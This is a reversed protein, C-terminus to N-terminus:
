EKGENAEETSSESHERKRRRINARQHYFGLAFQGQGENNLTRPFGEAADMGALIEEIQGRLWHASGGGSKRRIKPIHATEVRNLLRPLASAPATAAATYNRDVLTTNLQGDAAWQQADELVALLRGCLYGPHLRETDLHELREANEMTFEEGTPSLVETLKLVSVLRQSLWPASNWVRPNQLSRIASPRLSGPPPFGSYATRLLGRVENAEVERRGTVRGSEPDLAKVALADLLERVSFAQADRGSPTQLRTALLYRRLNHRLDELSEHLWERVVLRAKNPSLILVHAGADAVRLAAERAHWPTKLLRAVEAESAAEDRDFGGTTAQLVTRPDVPRGDETEVEVFDTWFVALHDKLSASAGDRPNRGIQVRHIEEDILHQLAKVARAGCPYCLSANLTQRRGYSRFASLNFSSLQCPEGMLNVRQPLTQVLARVEGCVSCSGREDATYEDEVYGAWFKRAGAGQFPYREGGVSFTVVDRPDIEANLEKHVPGSELRDAIRGLSEDGTEDAAERTLQRFGGHLLDAEEEKDEEPIGLAYRAQDALLYPKLNTPSPKGSRQRSPRPDQIEVERAHISGDEEIEVVWEIPSSQSFQKYGLPILRGENELEEALAVLHRLM